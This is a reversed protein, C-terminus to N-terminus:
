AALCLVIVYEASPDTAFTDQNSEHRLASDSLRITGEFLSSSNRSAGSTGLVLTDVLEVV